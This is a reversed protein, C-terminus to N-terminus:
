NNSKEIAKYGKENVLFVTNNNGKVNIINHGNKQYQLIVNNYDGEINALSINKPIM